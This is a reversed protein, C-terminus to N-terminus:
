EYGGGAWTEFGLRKVEARALDVKSYQSLQRLILLIELLMGQTRKAEKSYREIINTENTSNAGVNDVAGNGNGGDNSNGNRLSPIIEELTKRLYNIEETAEDSKNYREELKQRLFTRLPLNMSKAEAEYLLQSKLSLRINIPKGTKTM